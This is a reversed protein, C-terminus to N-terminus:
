ALVGSPAALESARYRGSRPRDLLLQLLQPVVEAPEPRDSIDEGPFADQHMRTRMDGPDFAYVRLDPLEAALVASLHDLAAKSAGYAGWGPYAEVAADSTLNVIAGQARRLAPLLLQTLAIPAVVNTTFTDSLEDPPVDALAPLPAPGLTGANNVLLELSGLEGVAEALARRHDPDGVDGPLVTVADRRPLEATMRRLGDAHRADVVVEWGDRVLARTLAAGFGRSAGTVLALPM